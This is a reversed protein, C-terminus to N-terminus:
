VVSKRDRLRRLMKIPASDRVAHKAILDEVTVKGGEPFLEGLKGVNVVGAISTFTISSQVTSPVLTLFALGLALGSSYWPLHLLGLGIVPFVVFTCVFITLHLRWHKLGAWAEATSLRAGYGLFLLFFKKQEEM